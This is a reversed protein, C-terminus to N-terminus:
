RRLAAAAADNSRKSRLEAAHRWTKLFMLLDAMQQPDIQQEVGEPMLSKGSTLSELDERLITVRKGDAGLLV